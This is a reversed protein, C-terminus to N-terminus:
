VADDHFVIMARRTAVVDEVTVRHGSDMELGLMRPAVGSSLVANLASAVAEPDRVLTGRVAKKRGGYRVVAPAPLAFNARWVAPSFVRAVGEGEHWGVPMRYRRGTRRGSFELLAFPKVMRAAPTRLVVGLLPNLFRTMM